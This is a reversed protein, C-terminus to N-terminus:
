VQNRPDSTVGRICTAIGLTPLESLWTSPADSDELKGREVARFSGM